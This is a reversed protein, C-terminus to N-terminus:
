DLEDGYDEDATLVEYVEAVVGSRPHREKSMVGSLGSAWAVAEELQEVTAGSREIAAVKADEINGAIDLIDRRSLRSAAANARDDPNMSNSM